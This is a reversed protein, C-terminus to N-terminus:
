TGGAKLARTGSEGALKEGRHINAGARRGEAWAQLDSPDRQHRGKRLDPVLAKLREEAEGKRNDYIALAASTAQQRAREKEERMASLVGHVAGQRFSSIFSRGNGKHKHALRDIEVVLWAYMYRVSAIDSPRGIIKLQQGHGSSQRYTQERYCACNYHRILGVALRLQWAPARRGWRVLADPDENPQESDGKGEAALQAEVLGHEQILRDAAAAAAAAENVNSSTALRRLKQVKDIIADMASM